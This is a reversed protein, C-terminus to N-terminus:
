FFATSVATQVLEEDYKGARVVVSSKRSSVAAKSAVASRMTFAM